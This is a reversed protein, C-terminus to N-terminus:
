CHLILNTIHYKEDIGQSFAMLYDLHFNKHIKRVGDLGNSWDCVRSWNVDQNDDQDGDWDGEYTLNWNLDRIIVQVWIGMGNRLSIMMGIEIVWNRLGM